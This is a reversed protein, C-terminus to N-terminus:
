ALRDHVLRGGLVVLVAAGARGVLSPDDLVDGDFVVLDAQKGAEITGIEGALGILEANTRTAAIVAGMAGLARAKIGIEEAQYRRMPGLLDSGSAIPVGAAAAVRLSELGADIIRELKDLSERPVGHKAGEAHLKEYTVLTPVLYTGHDAMLKATPADLLNGHEISRVGAAVCVEIAAPTYAHALVYTGAATAAAVAASLEELSYQVSELRDTPSVVGGGAMVKVQNAGRRLEERAARRVEDPGDAITHVLGVDPGCGAAGATEAPSRQDGHGGTQSLPRGSVLLRPGLIAGQEIARRFGADAGGADRVTTFGRALMESLAVGALLALESEYRRRTQSAIDADVATAHVHVDILGPLLSRGRLRIERAEGPPRGSGEIVEAIHGDEVVVSGAFAPAGTATVVTAESLVIRDSLNTRRMDAQQA